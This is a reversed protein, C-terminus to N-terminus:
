RFRRHAAAHFAEDILQLGCERAANDSNPPTWDVQPSLIPTVLPGM